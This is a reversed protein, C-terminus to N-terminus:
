VDVDVVKFPTLIHRFNTPQGGTSAYKANNLIIIELNKPKHAIITATAGMSMLYAGDGMIGIVKKDTSLAYGLSVGLVAGMAGRILIKNPHSIDTLDYSITGLSGIIVADQNEALLNSLFNKQIM